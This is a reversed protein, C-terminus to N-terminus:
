RSCMALDRKLAEYLHDRLLTVRKPMHRSAVSVLYLAADKRTYQPLVRELRGARLSEEVVLAPMLAIGVGHEALPLQFSMDDVNIKGRVTVSETGKPGSLKMRQTGQATAAKFLVVDHQALDALKKPTGRQGLYSPSAVLVAAETVLKKAVLDSSDLTGARVALDVNEALLDLRRGTVIVEIHVDPFRATFTALAAGVSRSLHGNDFPLTIRITGRIAGDDNLVETRGEDLLRLAERASVLYREGARTLTLKRTTRQLLSLGLEDELKQIARSVSSKPVGLTRAAATFSGAEVVRVWTAVRNLDITTPPAVTRKISAM